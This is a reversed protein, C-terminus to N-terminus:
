AGGGGVAASSQQRRKYEAMAMATIVIEDMAPSGQAMGMLDLTGRQKMSWNKKEYKAIPLEKEDVCVMDSSGMGNKKWTLTAGNFAPSRYTLGSKFVGRFEMNVAQGHIELEIRKALSRFRATGVMASTSASRIIVHPKTVSHLEITYLPTKDDTDLITLGTSLVGNSYVRLTRSSGPQQYPQAPYPSNAHGPGPQPYPQLGPVQASPPQQPYGNHYAQTPAQQYPPQPYAGPGNPYQYTM